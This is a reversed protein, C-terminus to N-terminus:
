AAPRRSRLGRRPVGPPARRRPPHFHRHALRGPGIKKGAVELQTYPKFYPARAGTKKEYVNAALFPFNAAAILAKLPGEGYDYDHNGPAAAAYGLQSMLAASALGKTLIGEPTGQWMDGSDLLIYPTTEKKLHAALAAFGGIMRDPNANDWRAPRASYWGHADSTHYVAVTLAAARGTLCLLLTLVFLLKKV